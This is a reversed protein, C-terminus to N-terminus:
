KGEANTNANTEASTDASTDANTDTNTDANTETNINANAEATIDPADSQYSPYVEFATRQTEGEPLLKKLRHGAIVGNILGVIAFIHIVISFITDFTLQFTFTFLTDIAFMVLSTTLFGVKFDKSLFWMLLYIGVILLAIVLMVYLFPKDLFQYTDYSDGYYEKDFSGTLELGVIILFYPVMACFLFYTQGGFAAFLINIISFLSILLLDFRASKYKNMLAFRSNKQSSQIPAPAGNFQQNM